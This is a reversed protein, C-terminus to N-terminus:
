RYATDKGQLTSLIEVQDNQPHSESVHQLRVGLAVNLPLCLKVNCCSHGFALDAMFVSIILFSTVQM